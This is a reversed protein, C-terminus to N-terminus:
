EILSKLSTIEMLLTTDDAYLVSYFKELLYPMDNIFILFLLPGLLSGQPVGLLINSLESVCKNIKVKQTRNDFYNRILNLASNDLGYNFLKLILLNPDVLDFAKRFDIFLLM